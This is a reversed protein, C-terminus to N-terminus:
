QWATVRFATRLSEDTSRRATYAIVLLMVGSPSEWDQWARIDRDTCAKGGERAGRLSRRRTKELKRGHPRVDMAEEGEVTIFSSATTETMNACLPGTCCFESLIPANETRGNRDFHDRDPQEKGILTGIFVVIEDESRGVARLRRAQNLRLIGDVM